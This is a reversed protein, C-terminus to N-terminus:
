PSKMEWPAPTLVELARGLAQGKRKKGIQVLVEQGPLTYPVTVREGEYIGEGKCPFRITQITLRIQENKKM